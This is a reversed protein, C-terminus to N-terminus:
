HQQKRQSVRPKLSSRSFTKIILCCWLLFPWLKLKWCGHQKCFFKYIYIFRLLRQTPIKCKALSIDDSKKKKLSYIFCDKQITEPILDKLKTRINWTQFHLFFLGRWSFEKKRAGQSSFTAGCGKIIDYLTKKWVQFFFWFMLNPSKKNRNDRNM